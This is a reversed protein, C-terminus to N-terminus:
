YRETEQSELTKEAMRAVDEQVMRLHVKLRHLDVELNRSVKLSRVAREIEALRSQSMSRKADVEAVYNELEGLARHLRHIPRIHLWRYFTPVFGVIPILLVIIPIVFFM